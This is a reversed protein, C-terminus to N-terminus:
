SVAAWMTFAGTQTNSGVTISSALTTRGTGNVAFRMNAGTLGANAIGLASGSGRAITAPTAANNLFAVWYSGAAAAYPTQVAGTLLGSSALAADIAGAATSAVLAGTSDYLGLFNQNATPTTAATSVGVLLNTITQAYRLKLQALYVTGSVTLTTNSTNVPDYTWAKLSLDSAQWTTPPVQVGNVTFVTTSALVLGGSTFTGIATGASNKLQLIDGAGQVIMAPAASNDSKARLAAGDGSTGHQLVTLGHNNSSGGKFAQRVVVADQGTDANDFNTTGM